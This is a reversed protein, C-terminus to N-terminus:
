LIVSWALEKGVHNVDEVRRLNPLKTRVLYDQLSRGNQCGVVPVDPFVKRNEKPLTLKHNQQM